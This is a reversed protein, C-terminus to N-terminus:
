CFPIEEAEGSGINMFGDSTTAPHSGKLLTPEPIKADSIKDKAIFRYCNTYFGHRGNYDYEKDNFIAGVVKGKLTSEDWAWLYGPNSDEFANMTAKFRKQTWIDNDTGDEKPVYLRYTGKWKKDESSNAEYQKKFFDKQEGEAIDYRFIIIDSNGNEGVQYKVDLIKLLYAGVPLKEFDNVTVNAYNNLPKM